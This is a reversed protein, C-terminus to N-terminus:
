LSESLDDILAMFGLSAITENNLNRNLIPSKASRWYGKRTNAFEMGKRRQNWSIKVDQIKKQSEEMTEM